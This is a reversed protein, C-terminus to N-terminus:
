PGIVQACPQRFRALQTLHFDDLAGARVKLDPRKGLQVRLALTRGQQEVLDRTIRLSKAHQGARHEVGGREAHRQPKVVPQVLALEGVLDEPQQLFGPAPNVVIRHLYDRIARDHFVYGGTVVDVQGNEGGRQPV